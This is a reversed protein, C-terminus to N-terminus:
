EFTVDSYQERVTKIWLSLAAKLYICNLIITRYDRDSVLKLKFERNLELYNFIEQDILYSKLRSWNEAILNTLNNFVLTEFPYNSPTNDNIINLFTSLNFIEDSFYSPSWELSNLIKQFNVSKNIKSLLIADKKNNNSRSFNEEVWAEHSSKLKQVEFSTYFPDNDIKKHDNRCLLILNKYTNDPIYKDIKLIEAVEKARPGNPSHPLDHAIEGINVYNSGDETTQFVEVRCFNCRGASKGYLLGLDFNEYKRAM